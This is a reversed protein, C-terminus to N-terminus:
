VVGVGGMRSTMHGSRRTPLTFDFINSFISFNTSFAGYIGLNWVRSEFSAIDLSPLFLSFGFFSIPNKKKKKKKKFVIIDKQIYGGRHNM